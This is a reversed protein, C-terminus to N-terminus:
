SVLNSEEKFFIGEKRIATELLAFLTRNVLDPVRKMFEIRDEAFEGTGRGYSLQNGVETNFLWQEQLRHIDELLRLDAAFDGAM